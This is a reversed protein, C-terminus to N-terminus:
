LFVEKTSLPVLGDAMRSEFVARGKTSRNMQKLATDRIPDPKRSGKKMHPITTEQEGAERWTM